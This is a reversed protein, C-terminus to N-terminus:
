SLFNGLQFARSPLINTLILPNYVINESLFEVTAQISRISLAPPQKLLVDVKGLDLRM